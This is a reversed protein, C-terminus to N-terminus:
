TVDAHKPQNSPKRDSESVQFNVQRLGHMILWLILPFRTSVSRVSLTNRRQTVPMAVNWVESNMFIKDDLRWQIMM